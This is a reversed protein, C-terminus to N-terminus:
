VVGEILNRQLNSIIGEGFHKADLELANYEYGFPDLESAGTVSYADNAVKWENYSKEDVHFKDPNKIAQEQYEHRIEHSITNIAEVLNNPDKVLAPTVSIRGSGDSYGWCYIYDCLETFSIGKFDIGLIDALKDGYTELYEQRQIESMNKWENFVDQTFMEKAVASAESIGYNRSDEFAVKISTENNMEIRKDPDFNSTEFVNLSDTKEAKNFNEMM